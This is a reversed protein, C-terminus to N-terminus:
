FALKVCGSLLGLALDDHSRDFAIDVIDALIDDANHQLAVIILHDIKADHHRGLFNQLGSAFLIGINNPQRSQNGGREIFHHMHGLLHLALVKRQWQQNAAGRGGFRM